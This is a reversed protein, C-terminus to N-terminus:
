SLVEFLRNLAGRNKQVVEHAKQAALRAHMPDRLWTIVQESLALADSVIVMGGAQELLLAIQTFNFVHPGSIIPLQLEAPELMNHGGVAVMSGAVFAVDSAAYLLMLDGMTDGLYVTTDQTVAENKSRLAVKFKESLCKQQVSGFREPHRPVIITLADPIHKLIGHIADMIIQEEGPHTSAAIWVPRNAFTQKLQKGQEITKQDCTIDFKINGTVTIKEQDVGISKFRVADDQTQAALKTVCSSMNKAMSPFKLYRRMSKESLRANAILLPTSRKKLSAFLNPWWETEMVIFKKPKFTEIFRNIAGPYDYPLYVHQVQEGFLAQVRKSGTPTMTTVTVAEGTAILHKILPEAANTEGVSVAHVVIGGANYNKKYKAFREHIRVRYDPALRSRWLLRLYAFPLALFVIFNYLKLKLKSKQSKLKRM